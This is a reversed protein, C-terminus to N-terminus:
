TTGPAGLTPLGGFIYGEIAHVSLQPLYAKGANNLTYEKTKEILEYQKILPYNRVALAYCSDIPLTQATVPGVTILLYMVAIIYKKSMIHDTQKMNLDIVSIM